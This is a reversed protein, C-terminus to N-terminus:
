PQRRWWDITQALGARLDYRPQWGTSRLKTTEAVVHMPDGPAYPKAGLRILDRRGTLDGITEAIHRVTVGTGSGINVIGTLNLAAVIASAVDAVHLFDRIQEGPTLAVPEGRRLSRIISPVLRRPDERPGYQYFIRLWTLELDMAQLHRLLALKSQAYLTTPEAPSTEALPRDTMTYEFCTGTVAFRRCRIARALRLSAAVWEHNLPSDLYKGPEVYWALHLCVDFTDTPFRYGPDLLDRGLCVVEHGTLADRVHSGIFGTAGTLLIKM